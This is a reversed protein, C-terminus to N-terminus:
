PLSTSSQSSTPGQRKFFDCSSSWLKCSLNVWFNGVRGVKENSMFWFIVLIFTQNEYLEVRSYELKVRVFMRTERKFFRCGRLISVFDFDYQNSCVQSNTIRLSKVIHSIYFNNCRWIVWLNCEMVILKPVFWGCSWIFSYCDDDSRWQSLQFNLM